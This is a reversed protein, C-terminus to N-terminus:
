LTTKLERGSGPPTGTPMYPLCLSLFSRAVAEIIFLRVFRNRHTVTRARFPGMEAGALLDPHSLIALVIPKEFM